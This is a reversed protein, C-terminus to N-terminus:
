DVVCVRQVSVIPCLVSVRKQTGPDGIATIGCGAFTLERKGFGQEDVEHLTGFCGNDVCQQMMMIACHIFLHRCQYIPHDIVPYFIYIMNHDCIIPM